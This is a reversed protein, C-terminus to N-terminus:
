TQCPLSKACYLLVSEVGVRFLQIKLERSPSSKWIKNLKSPASWALAIHIEMDKSTNGFWSRLYQFDHVCKLKDGGLTFMEGAHHYLIYKNKKEDVPLRIERAAAEVKHLLSQTDEFTYSLLAIDDAYETDTMTLEPHHSSVTQNLSFGLKKFWQTLM